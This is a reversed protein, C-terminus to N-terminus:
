DCLRGSGLPMRDLVTKSKGSVRYTSSVLSEDACIQMLNTPDYRVEM